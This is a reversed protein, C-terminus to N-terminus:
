HHAAELKELRRTVQRDLELLRDQWEELDDDTHEVKENLEVEFNRRVTLVNDQLGDVAERVVGQFLKGQHAVRDALHATLETRLRQLDDWGVAAVAMPHTQTSSSVMVVKKTSYGKTSKMAKMVKMAKAMLGRFQLSNYVNSSTDQLRSCSANSSHQSDHESDHQKLMPFSVIDPILLVIYLQSQHM